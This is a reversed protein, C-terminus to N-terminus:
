FAGLWFHLWCYQALKLWAQCLCHWLEGLFLVRWLSSVVYGETLRLETRLWQFAMNTFAFGAVAVIGVLLSPVWGLHVAAIGAILAVVSVQAIGVRLLMSIASPERFILSNIGFMSLTGVIMMFSKLVAWNAIAETTGHRTILVDAIYLSGVGSLFILASPALRLAKRIHHERISM